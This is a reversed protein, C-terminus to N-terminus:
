KGLLEIEKPDQIEDVSKAFSAFIYDVSYKKQKGEKEYAKVLATLDFDNKLQREIKDLKKNVLNNVISQEKETLEKIGNIRINKEM